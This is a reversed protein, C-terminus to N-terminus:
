RCTPRALCRARTRWWRASPRQWRHTTPAESAGSVGQSLVPLHPPTEEVWVSVQTDEHGGPEGTAASWFSGAHRGLWLAM